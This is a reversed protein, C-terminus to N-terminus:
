DMINVLSSILRHVAGLRRLHLLLRCSLHKPRPIDLSISFECRHALSVARAFSRKLATKKKSVTILRSPATKQTAASTMDSSPIQQSTNHEFAWPSETALAPHHLLRAAGRVRLVSLATQWRPCRCRKGSRVQRTKAVFGKKKSDTRCHLRDSAVRDRSSVRSAGSLLLRLTVFVDRGEQTTSTEEELSM